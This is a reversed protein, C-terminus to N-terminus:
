FHLKQRVTIGAGKSQYWFGDCYAVEATMEYHRFHLGVGFNQIWSGNEIGFGWQMRVPTWPFYHVDLELNPQTSFGYSDTFSQQLGASLIWNRFPQTIFTVTAYSPVRVQLSGGLKLTDDTTVAISDIIADMDDSDNVEGDHFADIGYYISTINDLKIKPALNVVAIQLDSPRGLRESLDLGMGIDLGLGWHSQSISFQDSEFDTYNPAASARVVVSDELNRFTLDDVDAQGYAIGGIFNLRYGLRLRSDAYNSQWSKSLSIQNYSITEFRMEQKEFELGLQTDFRGLEYILDGPADIGSYSFMGWDLAFSGIRFGFISPQESVAWATVDIGKFPRVRNEKEASTLQTEETWFDIYWQGDVANNMIRGAGPSVSWSTRTPFLHLNAPNRNDYSSYLRFTKWIHEKKAAQRAARLSDMKVASLTDATETGLSDEVSEDAAPYPPISGNLQVSSFVLLSLILLFKQYM